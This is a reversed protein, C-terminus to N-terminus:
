GRAWRWTPGAWGAASRPGCWPTTWIRRRRPWIARPRTWTPGRTTWTRSRWPTRALLPECGSSPGSPTRTAPSRAETPPRPRVPDIRYLVQGPKVIAGETFPRAEIVGTWGRACRSGAIPSCRAPSSTRPRCGARSSRCWRSRRRRRRRRRRTGEQMRGGGPRRDRRGRDGRAVARGARDTVRARRTQHSPAGGRARVTRGDRTGGAVDGRARAHARDYARFASVKEAVGVLAYSITRAAVDVDM